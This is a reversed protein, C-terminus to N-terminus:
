CPTGSSATKTAASPTLDLTLRRVSFRDEGSFVLHMTRGDASIWKTPFGACEGPAVDWQRTHWVTTWPGWPEPADYIGFGAKKFRVDRGKKGIGQWWFYRGLAANYSIGSRGCRGPNSFVAGRRTVRATWAPNGDGDIEEFFEYADRDAIQDKPVRMLIFFDAPDYASPGDPAVTYVYQDRAGKYNRGYNYTHIVTLV